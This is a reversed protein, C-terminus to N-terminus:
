LTTVPSVYLSVQHPEGPADSSLTLQYDYGDKVGRGICLIALGLNNAPRQCTGEVELTLGATAAIQELDKAAVVSDAEWRWSISPCPNTSVCLFQERRVTDAQQKWGAPIALRSVQSVLEDTVRDEFSRVIISAAVALVVIGILIGGLIKKV